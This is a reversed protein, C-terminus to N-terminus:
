DAAEKMVASDPEHTLGEEYAVIAQPPRDHKVIM